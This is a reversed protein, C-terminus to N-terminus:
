SAPGSPWRAPSPSGSASVAPCRPPGRQAYAPPCASRSCCTASRPRSTGPARPRPHQAAEALAAGVTHMPNLSSYPDQFVIQVTGRLRRRDKGAAQELRPRSATSPSRGAPPPSLAALVRALTTKGSGSEGVLGVSEGPGVEVSVGDLATM